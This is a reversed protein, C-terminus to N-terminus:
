GEPLSNKHKLRGPLQHLKYLLSQRFLERFVSLLPQFIGPLLAAEPIKSFQTKSSKYALFPLLFPFYGKKILKYKDPLKQLKKLEM